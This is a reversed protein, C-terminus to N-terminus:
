IPPVTTVGDFKQLCNYRGYNQCENPNPFNLNVSEVFAKLILRLKQELEIPPRCLRTKPRDRLTLLGVLVSEGERYIESVYLSPSLTSTPSSVKLSQGFVLNHRGGM